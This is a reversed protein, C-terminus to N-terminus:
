QDNRPPPQPPPGEGPRNQPGQGGFPRPLPGRDGPGRGAGAAPGEPPFGPGDPRPPGRHEPDGEGRPGGQFMRDRRQDGDPRHGHGPGFMGGMFAGGPGMEWLDRIDMAITDRAYRQELDSRFEAPEKELIRELEDRKDEPWEAVMRGLDATTPSHGQVVSEYEQLVNGIIMAFVVLRKGEVQAEAYSPPMELQPVDALLEDPDRELMKFINENRGRLISFVAFYRAVGVKENGDADILRAQEAENLLPIRNELAAMLAALEDASIDPVGRRLWMSSWKRRSRRFDENRKDVIRQMEDIRSRSDTTTRLRQRDYSQNSALWACYDQMTQGVRGAGGNADAELAAHLDRYKQRDAESLALYERTNRDLRDRDAQSMGAVAAEVGNWNAPVSRLLLPPVALALAAGGTMLLM